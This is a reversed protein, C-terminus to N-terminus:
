QRSTSIGSIKRASFFRNATALSPSDSMFLHQRISLTAPGRKPQFLMASGLPPFVLNCDVQKGPTSTAVGAPCTAGQGSGRNFEAERLQQDPM